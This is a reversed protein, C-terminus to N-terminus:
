KENRQLNGTLRIKTNAQEVEKLISLRENKDEGLIAKVDKPLCSGGYGYQGDHGPVQFHSDGLRGDNALLTIFESWDSDSCSGYVDIYLQQMQNLFAVKMALFSNIAYKVMSAARFDVYSFNINMRIQSHNTYITRLENCDHWNGAMIISSPNLVDFEWNSERLFEPSYIFRLPGEKRLIKDSAFEECLDNIAAPPVTSKLVVLGAYTQDVLVQLVNRIISIDVSGDALTPAPVSVFIVRPNFEWVMNYISHHPHTKPDVVYSVSNHEFVYEQARGVFGYGIFGLKLM